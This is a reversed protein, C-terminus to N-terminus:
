RINGILEKVAEIAEAVKAQAIEVTWGGATFLYGLGGAVVLVIAGLVYLITGSKEFVEYTTELDSVKVVYTGPEEEAHKFELTQSAGVEMSITQSGVVTGNVKLEVTYDGAATGTNEVDVNFTADQGQKVDLPSIVLNSFEFKAALEMVRVDLEADLLGSKTAVIKHMGPETSTYTITGDMSTSGLSKGDFTVEAGQVADGGISKLVFITMPSGEFVEEPSVEISVKKTEDDPDIVEIEDSGSVYGEKEAVIELNGVKTPTYDIRGEDDTTGIETGEVTVTADAVSAGRSTVTITVEEGKKLVSAGLEVKLEEDPSTKVETYVYYRVDSSDAVRIGVNEMIEIDKDKSLSISDENKMIISSGLGTIEMKGFTDGDELETYEDSIQFIGEVFVANSETGRFVEDFHVVIIPVDESEGLDTEYIYDDNGSVIGSDVEDGDKNLEVLVKNGDNDVEVIDLTYGEGLTLSSGSFVSKKEDEDLIVKSLQGDSLLDVEDNSNTDFADEPYGAFYKEAMFGIVKFGNDWESHEFEVEEPTSTYVLDGDDISRGDIDLVELKETQIGEDIDYYFGEFNLPTWTLLDSGEAVTGRLEYTGPESMDVFPAFRLDDDDAVILKIKGMIDVIKGKSLSVSDDNKMQIMTDGVSTIEMKGFSDGSEVELYEDSIQFIGKVFVANSETGSFIDDFHVAILVVDDSDGIDVQYIYDDNGSVVDSDLEDGDKVLRVFVSNGNVDVEVIKLEYGEELILSSGSFVSEKEDDDILVKALQGDSMMSIIEVGDIDTNSTYAAFYNEAMFGIVQYKGWASHEFDTEVPNTEYVIDKDGISRDIDTITMTESSLGSELDYFFGSFSKANWTYDTSQGANEDWIRDGSSYTKSRVNWTWSKSVTDSSNTATVTVNYEGVSADSKTFEADSSSSNTQVSSGDIYWEINCIKNVTLNFIQANGVTSEPNSTPKSDTISLPIDTVTWDWKEQDTGNANEAFVTLNHTGEPASDFSYSSSIVSTNTTLTTGNMIWTLNVPQNITVEFTRSDGTNDSPTLDTPDVITISPAPIAMVDWTWIQDDTGNANSATAKVTYTDAPATSNTYSASTQSNNTQVSIGDIFWEIDAIQNTGVTFVQTDGVTTDPDSGPSHSDIDLSENLTWTWEFSSSEMTTTNLAVVTVNHVGASPNASYSDSTQNVVSQESAGNLYWTIDTTENM